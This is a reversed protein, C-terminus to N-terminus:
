YFFLLLLFLLLLLIFLRSHLVGHHFLQMEEKKRKKKKGEKGTAGVRNIYSAQRPCNLVTLYRRSWISFCSGWQEPRISLNDCGGGGFSVCEVVDNFGTASKKKKTLLV